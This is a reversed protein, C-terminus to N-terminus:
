QQQCGDSQLQLLYENRIAEIRGNARMKELSDTINPVLNMHKKNLYHYLNTTLLPPKLAKIKKIKTKKIVTYAELSDHVCVDYRGLAVLKLFDEATNYM